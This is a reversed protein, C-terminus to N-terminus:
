KKNVDNIRDPEGKYDPRAPPHKSSTSDKEQSTQEESKESKSCSFLTLLIFLAIFNKM